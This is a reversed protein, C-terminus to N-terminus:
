EPEWVAIRAYFDENERIYPIEPALNLSAPKFTRSFGLGITYVKPKV